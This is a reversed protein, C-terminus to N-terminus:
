QQLGMRRLLATFRPDRRLQDFRPDAILYTLNASRGEVAKELWEFAKDNEGLRAYLMALSYPSIYERKSYELLEDIRAQWVGRIGSTAYIKKVDAIVEPREGVLSADLAKEHMGEVEYVKSLTDHAVLFNPDLELTKYLQQKAEDYRRALFLMDGVNESIILSLPDLEQAKKAEAVSEELRGMIPLFLSYRHHGTAYNPNLEIAVKFEREAEAWNWDYSARIMALSVHAEALKPDIELAKVAASKAREYADKPVAYRYWGMVFWSDALGAYALAYNPDHEIAQNFYEASKNLGERTRKNWHFRGKLYLQYAEASRSDRELLQKQEEGSIRLRLKETIERAIDQKVALVDSVKREYEEGWLQAGTAVDVLDVQVNLSDGSQRVRGTLVANVNLERGIAQPDIEKGKYRFATARAVVRLSQLQTLSNILTESIGDSLYETDSDSNANVFPLVAISEIAPKANRTYLFVSVGVAAIVLALVIMVTAIKHQKIGSVIYEASSTQQVGGSRTAARTGSATSGGSQLGGTSGAGRLEPPVTRDIEADVELKRKLNRLDILLDRATQYREERNKTLAKAVIRELEAPVENAYRTLPAPERQLILSITETPTEGAFPLHGTIMEYLMAGVSWLDTRHDLVTGKAQEPSMYSATGMVTGAGTNVMARTPAETDTIDGPPQSLKALGFDLVKAYGDRRVMVNEPKIDRHVIGASHAAELASSIQISIELIEELKMGSAIRTRLTDGDIFETAIFRSAGTTGIEHITLIHPHNLASAAKAEQIFRQLRQQDQALSEPLIKIAVTRDLETDVALYVEGM